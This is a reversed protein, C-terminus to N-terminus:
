LKFSMITVFVLNCLTYLNHSIYSSVEYNVNGCRQVKCGQVNCTSYQLLLLITGQM